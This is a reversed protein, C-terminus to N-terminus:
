RSIERKKAKKRCLYLLILTSIIFSFSWSTTKSTSSTIFITGNISILRFEVAVGGGKQLEAEFVTTSDVTMKRLSTATPNTIYNANEADGYILAEYIGNPDLFTLPIDLYRANEDTVAGLYWKNGSRRTITIYDGIKSNLGITDDWTVPVNRIFECEPKLKSNSYYSETLDCVMQLPSFYIVYLALQHAITSFRNPLNYDFVGPTFDFPGALLRTFPIITQHKPPNGSPDWANYEQGRAGERTMINPFTRSLGTPKIPEHVDLTIQYKNATELVERYHNVMVQGHHYQIGENTKIPYGAYGTKVSTINKSKLYNFINGIGQSEYNIINGGTEVHGIIKIGKSAAYSVVEDINYDETPTTFDQDGWDGDWGINWGEVLLGQCNLDVCTDIYEKARKTTAGHNPGMAWTYDGRHMGWWIGMYKMPKIWSTDDLKCPDNLNLVLSSEILDSLSDTILLVRWPSKHPTSAKVKVNSNYWPVLESKFTFDNGDQPKVLTMGAWDTLNAEHISIIVGTDTEITIPTNVGELTAVSLRTREYLHEYSDYDDPIWWAIHDDTFEFYTEESIIEFFKLNPQSPLEYRFGIGEDYVRFILNLTRKLGNIEILNITLENYQNRIQSHQGWIPTWWSDYSNISYNDITFNDIMSGNEKFIFGLSSPRIIQIGQFEVSYVPKTNILEFTIKIKDNPSTQTISDNNVFKKSCRAFNIDSSKSRTSTIPCLKKNQINSLNSIVLALTFLAVFLFLLSNKPHNRFKM